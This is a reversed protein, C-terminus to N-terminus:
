PRQALAAGSGDSMQRLQGQLAPLGDAVFAKLVAEGAGPSAELTYFILVAADDGRGLLRSWATLLKAVHDSTTLRGGVWYTQWVRLVPLDSRAAAATPRLLAERVRVPAAGDIALERVGQGVQVWQRNDSRLLQNTSSVLKREYDQQRYYGIYLGVQSGERAFRETYEAAAGQFAPRWEIPFTSAQQWGRVLVPAMRPEGRAREAREVAALGLHPLGAVLAAALATIGFALSGAPVAKPASRSSGAAALDADPERWGAGIWFMLGIVVGFFVWGYVLHDAGAAFRNDSLHGIMVIIYARLWNAVIPVLLAVGVFILRRKLSRYNLYAFLTGVVLSAILYRVGSCAEVVSWNGSPIVFQLGERYVPIGTLRLAIVTFDATWLMMVPMLFEGVPVAFFLFGLPFMLARAVQWGLVAPVALVILAVLSFQTVANVAALDGLLWGLGIAAMVGLVWLAPRPTLAALEHRKRWILWLAIPPVLFAHTFTESRSWIAVMALATERYILLVAALVLVLALLAPRWGPDANAPLM